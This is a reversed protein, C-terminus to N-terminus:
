PLTKAHKLAEKMLTQTVHESVGARRMALANLEVNEAATMKALKARDYLGLARQERGIAVHLDHSLAVAPNMTSAPGAGRKVGTHVEIWANQLLEHGELKDGTRASNSFSGYYDIDFENLPTVGSKLEAAAKSAGIIFITEAAQYVIKGSQKGGEQAIKRLGKNQVRNAREQPLAETANISAAAERNDEDTQRKSEPAMLGGLRKGTDAFTDEIEARKRLAANFPHAITRWSGKLAYSITSGWDTDEEVAKRYKEIAARMEILDIERTVSKEANGTPDRGNIPDGAAFAYLNSSDGYGFPDPTLWTGTRPDFWRSRVYNKESFPDSFPQAQFGAAMLLDADGNGGSTGLAGLGTVEYPTTAAESGAPIGGIFTNIGALSDRVEVPLAASSFVPNTATAWAPAPLLPVDAAWAGARLQNTVAISLSTGNAATGDTLLANWQAASLVWELRFSDGAVPTASVPSLAAVAGNAKVIALRSGAAISTERLAETSRIRIRVTELAGAANKKAQLEVRDVAAGALEFEESGYPDTSIHRAVVEGNRNVVVQLTGNGAEDYVPYIRAVPVAGGPPIVSVLDPTTIEIPDDLGLDGHIFQRLLNGNPDGPSASAGAKFISLLRDTVPDWVFTLEPPIGDAAMITPRDETKWILTDLPTTLTPLTAYQATRGVLRNNADYSYLIRRIPFATSAPKEAVWILRHKEDYSYRFRGDETRADGEGTGDPKTWKFDEATPGKTFKDIKHGPRPDAKSGPPDITDPDIGKNQLDTRAAADFTPTRDQGKRFDGPSMLDQGVGPAAAQPIGPITPVPPATSDAVATVSGFLRGRSDYSYRTHRAAGGSVGVLEEEQVQLTDGYQIKSGAIALAGITASMSELRSTAPKYGYTRVLQKLCSATACGQPKIHVTRSDPRRSNRYVGSLLTEGDRKLEILNGMADYSMALNKAWEGAPSGPMTLSTLEGYGNFAHGVTYSDLVAATSFGSGDKFRTQRTTKPLGDATYDSYEILADRTRWSKLRAADDYTIEDLKPAGAAPAASAYVTIMQGKANYEFSQWLGQRNKTAVLRPGDYIYEESTLDPYAVRTVRGISDRTTKTEESEEDLRVVKAGTAHHQENRTSGDPLTERVLNGRSDYEYQTVPRGPQASKISNGNQDFQGQWQLAAIRVLKANGMTDFERDIQYTSAPAAKPEHQEIRKALMTAGYLSMVARDYVQTMSSTTGQGASSEQMRGADDFKKFAARGGDTAGAATSALRVTRGGADWQQAVERSLDTGTETVKIIKGAPAFDTHKRYYEAGAADILRIDTARNWGDYDIKQKSGTLSLVDTTRGAADFAYVTAEKQNTTYVAHGALDYATANQIYKGSEYEQKTEKTRGLRDLTTTIESEGPPTNLIKGSAFQTYDTLETITSLSGNVDVQDKKVSKTRRMFDYDFTTTVTEDGALTTQKDRQEHLRGDPEYIFQTELSLPDGANNTIRTHVPRHWEDYTTTTSNRGDDVVDKDQSLYTYTTTLAGTGVHIATPLGRKYLDSPPTAPYDIKVHNNTPDGATGGSTTVETVLGTKLDYTTTTTVSDNTATITPTGRHAEPSEITQGNATTSKLYTGDYQYTKNVPGVSVSQLLQGLNTGASQYGYSTTMAGVLQSTTLLGEDTYGFKFTRTQPQTNAAGATISGPLAGFAADKYVDVDDETTTDVHTRDQTYWKFKENAAPTPPNKFTYHRVQHLVDESQANTTIGTSANVSFDFTAEEGTAWKQTKVYDRPGTYSFTVRAPGNYPVRDPETISLLNSSLELKDSYGSSSAVDYAYKREPQTLAGLLSRFEPLKVSTLHGATDYDYQLKRSPSRWDEVDKLFGEKQNPLDHYHFRSVRDVPDVVSDLRGKADYVYVIQNGKGDPTYFEDGERILRGYDDFYTQRLKQDTLVWGSDTKSLRAFYGKPTTYDAGARKYLFVEGSGDRYEVDGNPLARLRKFIGADWGVGLTTFGLTRSRYARDVIVNWGARGGADLDIADHGVEGSHLYISEQLVGGALPPNQAAILVNAPRVTDAMITGARARLRRDESLWAYPNGATIDEPRVVLFRGATYLEKANTDDKLYKPRECAFCGLNEKQENTTSSTWISYDKSARPDAIAVIWKSVFRNYGKQYRLEPMSSIDLVHELKFSPTQARLDVNGDRRKYRLHAVPYPDVTQPADAGPVLESEIAIELGTSPLSDTISGPLNAEVRFVGLSAPCDPDKAKDCQLVGDPPAVGLPVISGVERLKGNKAGVNVMFRMKPDIASAVHVKKALFDGGFLFGTDPDVVPAVQGSGVPDESRWLIRIDDAGYGGYSSTGALAAAATPFLGTTATGNVIREDVRSLDVLLAHGQGDIVVAMNTGEIVRVAYAGAPIWVVDAFSDSNLPVNGAEVVILGYDLAPMLLYSKNTNPNDYIAATNFRVLAAQNLATVASKLAEFRPNFGSTLVIEGSRSISSPPNIVFDVAGKKADLTYIKNTGASTLQIASEPSYALSGISNAPGPGLPLPGDFANERLAVQEQPRDASTTGAAQKSDNSEVANMDFVGIGYGFLTVVAYTSLNYTVRLVDNPGAVINKFQADPINAGDNDARADASWKLGMTVNEITIRQIRYSTAQAPIHADYKHLKNADCPPAPDVCSDSTTFGAVFTDRDYEVPPADGVVIRVKRPIADVRDATILASGLGVGYSTGINQSTITSGIQNCVVHPTGCPPTTALNAKVFDEARYTRLVGWLNTMGAAYIRGHRDAQVSWYQTVGGPAYAVPLIPQKPSPPTDSLAAPDSMDYALIGGDVAAVFLLNGYSTMDRISGTSETASQRLTFDSINGKPGRTEFTTEMPAASGIPTINGSSPDKQGAQGLGLNNGSRDKIDKELTLRFKEGAALSSPLLISVRRGTSDLRLLATKLIDTPQATSGSPPMQEFKIITKLFDSIDKETTPNSSGLDIAENFVVSVPAAPDVDKEDILLIIRDGPKALMGNIPLQQPGRREGTRVNLASIKTTGDISSSGSSSSSGQINLTGGTNLKLELDRIANLAVNEPPVEAIEVRFPTAFVPHPGNFDTDPNAIVVGKGPDGFPIPDYTTQFATISTAPDVGTITFRTGAPVPFAIRGKAEAVYRHGCYMSYMTDWFLDVITTLTDIFSWVMGNSAAGQKMQYAAYSGADIVRLLFDKPDDNRALGSTPKLTRAGSSPPRVTTLTGNVIYLTDVAMIRPGRVSEGLVGLFYQGSASPAPFTLDLPVNARGEFKLTVSGAAALENNINPVASFVEPPAPTVEIMTAHDFAGAPVAVTVGDASTFTVAKNAPAVFARGNEAVFPTLPIIASLAGNTNLLRLDIEDSITVGSLTM